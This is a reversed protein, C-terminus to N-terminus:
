FLGLRCAHRGLGVTPDDLHLSFVLM